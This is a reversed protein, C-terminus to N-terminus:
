SFGVQDVNLNVRDIIYSQYDPIRNVKLFQLEFEIPFQNPNCCNYSLSSGFRLFAPQDGTSEGTQSSRHVDRIIIRIIRVLDWTMLSVNDM